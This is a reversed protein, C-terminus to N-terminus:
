EKFEMYFRIKEEIKKTTSHIWYENNPYTDFTYVEVWYRDLIMKIGWGTYNTSDVYEWHHFLNEYSCNGLTLENKILTFKDDYVGSCLKKINTGEELLNITVGM